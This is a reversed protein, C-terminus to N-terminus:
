QVTYTAGQLFLALPQRPNQDSKGGQGPHMRRTLYARLLLTPARRGLRLHLTRIRPLAKRPDRQGGSGRLNSLSGRKSSPSASRFRLPHPCPLCGLFATLISSFAGKPPAFDPFSSHNLANRPGEDTSVTGVTAVRGRRNTYFRGCSSQAPRILSPLCPSVSM